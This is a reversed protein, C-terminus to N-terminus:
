MKRGTGRSKAKRYNELDGGHSISRDKHQARHHSLSVLNEFEKPCIPCRKEMTMPNNQPTKKRNSVNHGEVSNRKSKTTNKECNEDPRAFSHGAIHRVSVPDGEIRVVCTGPEKNNEIKM